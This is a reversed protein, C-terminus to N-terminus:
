GTGGMARQREEDNMYQWARNLNAMRNSENRSPMAPNTRLTLTPRIDYEAEWGAANLWTAAYKIYKPETGEVEVQRAYKRVGDMITDVSTDQNREEM